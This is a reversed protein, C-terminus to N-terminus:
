SKWLGTSPSRWRNLYGMGSPQPRHLRGHPRSLFREPCPLHNEAAPGELAYRCLSVIIILFPFFSLLVNAAISFAYVHVETEMWYRLTPACARVWVTQHSREGERTILEFVHRDQGTAAACALAIRDPREVGDTVGAGQQV